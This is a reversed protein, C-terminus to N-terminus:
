VTCADAISSELMRLNFVVSEISMVEGDLRAVSHLLYPNVVLIDGQSVELRKGDIFVLGRGAQVRIVEMEEHWHMPYNTLDDDFVTGYKAFPRMANGHQKKELLERSEM